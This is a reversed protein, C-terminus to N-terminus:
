ARSARKTRKRPSSEPANDGDAGSDSNSESSSGIDDGSGTEFGAKADDGSESGSGADDYGSEFSESHQNVAEKSDSTKADDDSLVPESPSSRSRAGRDRGRGHCVDQGRAPAQRERRGAAPPPTAPAPLAAAM